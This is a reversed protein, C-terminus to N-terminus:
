GEILPESGSTVIAWPTNGLSTLLKRSGPIEVAEDGYKLPLLGEAKRVDTISETEWIM